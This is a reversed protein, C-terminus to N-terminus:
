SAYAIFNLGPEDADKPQLGDSMGDSRTDLNVLYSLDDGANLSVVALLAVLVLIKKM